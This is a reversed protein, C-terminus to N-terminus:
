TRRRWATGRRPGRNWQVPCAPRCISRRSAPMTAAVGSPAITSRTPCRGAAKAAASPAGSASAARGVRTARASTRIAMRGTATSTTRFKRTWPWTTCRRMPCRSVSSRSAAMSRSASAVTTVSWSGTRIAPTGGSTTCIAVRAHRTPCRPSAATAPASSACASWSCSTPTTPHSASVPTTSRVNSCTMIVTSPAGTAAGM